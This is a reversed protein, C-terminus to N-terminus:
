CVHLKAHPNYVPFTMSEGVREVYYVSQSEMTLNLSLHTATSLGDSNHKDICLCASLNYLMHLQYIEM